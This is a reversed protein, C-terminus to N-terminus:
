NIAFKLGALYAFGEAGSFVSERLRDNEILIGAFLNFEKTFNYIIKLIGRKVPPDHYPDGIEEPHFEGYNLDLIFKKNHYRLGLYGGIGTIPTESKFFQDRYYLSKGWFIDNSNFEKRFGYEDYIGEAYIFFNGSRVSLDFGIHNKYQKQWESGIGDQIKASIGFTINKLEIGGRAVAAKSSNTDKDPGGNVISLDLRLIGSSYGIFIGTEWWLISETRIFPQFIESNTFHLFNDRGFVSKRKGLSIEINRTKFGVFIRAIQFRDVKFNQLYQERYEDVLINNDFSQNIRFEGGAFIESRGVKRSVNGHLVAEAAFTAEVGSWQIRQDNSFYSRADIELDYKLKSGEKGAPFNLSFILLSIIVFTITKKVSMGLKVIFKFILLLKSM